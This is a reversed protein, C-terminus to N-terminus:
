AYSIMGLRTPESIHILSLIEPPSAPTTDFHPDAQQESQEREAARGRVGRVDRAIGLEPPCRQVEIRPNSRRPVRRGADKGEAVDQSEPLRVLLQGLTKGRVTVGDDAEIHLLKEVAKGIGRKQAVADQHVIKRAQNLAGKM